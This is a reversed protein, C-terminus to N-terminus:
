ARVVNILADSFGQVQNRWSKSDGENHCFFCDYNCKNTLSIRLSNIRFSEIGKGFTAQQNKPFFTIPVKQM